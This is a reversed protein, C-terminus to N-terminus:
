QLSFGAILGLKSKNAADSQKEETIWDNVRGYFHNKHQKEEEGWDAAVTKNQRLRERTKWKFPM